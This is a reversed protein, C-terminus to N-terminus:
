RTPWWTEEKPALLFRLNATLSPSDLAQVIADNKMWYDRGSRGSRRAGRDPSLSEPECLLVRHGVINFQVNRLLHRSNADDCAPSSPPTLAGRNWLPDWRTNRRCAPFSTRTPISVPAIVGHSTCSSRLRPSSTTQRSALCAHAPTLGQSRTGGLRSALDAVEKQLVRMRQSFSPSGASLGKMAEAVNRIRKALEALEAKHDKAISAMARDRDLPYAM